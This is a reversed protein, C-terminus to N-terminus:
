RKARKAVPAPPITLMAKSFADEVPLGSLIDAIIQARATNITKPISAQHIKYHEWMIQVAQDPKIKAKPALSAETMRLFHTFEGNVTPWDFSFVQRRCEIPDQHDDAVPPEEGNAEQVILCSLDPLSKSETFSRLVDLRHGAGADKAKQVIKRNPHAQRARELLDDDSITRKDKALEVLIPFYVSALQLDVATTTRASPEILKSM